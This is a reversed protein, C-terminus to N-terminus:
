LDKKLKAYEWRNNDEDIQRRKAWRFYEKRHTAIVGNKPEGRFEPINGYMEIGHGEDFQNRIEDLDEEHQNMADEVIQDNHINDFM